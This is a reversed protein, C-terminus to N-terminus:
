ANILCAQLDAWVKDRNLNYLAVALATKADNVPCDIEGRWYEGDALHLKILDVTPPGLPASLLAVFIHYHEDSYGMTAGFRGLLTLAQVGHGTEEEIERRVAAEPSEGPEILGGPVEVVIARHMQRYQRVFIGNQRDVLSLAAVTGPHQSVRHRDTM